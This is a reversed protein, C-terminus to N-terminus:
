YKSVHSKGKKLTARIKAVRKKASKTMSKKRRPTSAVMGSGRASTPAPTAKSGKLFYSGVRAAARVPFGIAGLSPAIFNAAKVVTALIRKHDINDFFFGASLLVIQSQHLTELTTTSVGVQWLVTNNRFEIHWDANMALATGGDPDNLSLANVFATNDLRYVPVPSLITITCDMFDTLDTSPPAYTYFGKELGSYYKEAPHLTTLDSLAFAFPNATRPNLRAANVTGEKNLVKTVNTGLLAVSTLRTSQYPVASTSFAPPGFLPLLDAFTTTSINLTKTAPSYASASGAGYVHIILATSTTSTATSSCNLITPRVWSGAIAAPAVADFYWVNNSAALAVATQLPTEGPGSWVDFTVTLSSGATAAGAGNDLIVSLKASTPVYIFPASGTGADMGIPAYGWTTATAGAVINNFYSNFSGVATRGCQTIAMSENPNILNLSSYFYSYSQTAWVQDM